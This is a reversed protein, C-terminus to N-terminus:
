DTNQQKDNKHFCKFYEIENIRVKLNPIPCIAMITDYMSQTLDLHIKNNTTIFTLYRGGRSIITDTVDVIDEWRIFEIEKKLWIWKIGDNTFIVKSLFKKDFIFINLYLISLVLFILFVSLLSNNNITCIGLTITIACLLLLLFMFFILTNGHKWFKVVM